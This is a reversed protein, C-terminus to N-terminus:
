DFDEYLDFLYKGHISSYIINGLRGKAIFKIFTIRKDDYRKEIIKIKSKQFGTERAVLEKAQNKNM